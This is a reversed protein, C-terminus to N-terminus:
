ICVCFCMLNCRKCADNDKITVLITRTGTELRRFDDPNIQSEDFEFYLIFGEDGELKDDDQVTISMNYSIIVTELSALFTFSAM